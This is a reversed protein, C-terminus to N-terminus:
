ITTSLKNRSSSINYFYASAMALAIILGHDIISYYYNMILVAGTFIIAILSYFSPNKEPNYLTSVLKAFRYTELGTNEPKAWNVLLLWFVHSLNAILIITVGGGLFMAALSFDSLPEYSNLKQLLATDKIFSYIIASSAYVYTAYLLVRIGTRGDISKSIYSVISISLMLTAVATLIYRNYVLSLYVLLGTYILLTEPQIGRFIHKYFVATFLFGYLLGNLFGAESTGTFFLFFMGLWYLTFGLSGIHGWLREKWPVGRTMILSQVIIGTFFAIGLLYDNMVLM